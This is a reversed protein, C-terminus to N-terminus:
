DGVAWGSAAAVTITTDGVNLSSTLRTFKTAPALGYLELKGTVVIAKNNPSAFDDLVLFEASFGGTLIINIKGPFPADPLGAVLKGGRVWIYSSKLTIADITDDFRLTGDIKLSHVEVAPLNLKITWECPILVDDNPGPVGTTWANAASGKPKRLAKEM